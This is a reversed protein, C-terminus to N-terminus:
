CSHLYGLCFQSSVEAADLSTLHPLTPANVAMALSHASRPHFQIFQWSESNLPKSGNFKIAVPDLSFSFDNLPVTIGQGTAKVFAEKLTWIRYFAVAQQAKPLSAILEREALTFISDAIEFPAPKSWTEADIGIECHQAAVACAVFDDTHTLSFRPAGQGFSPDVIPKGNAMTSFRWVQPEIDALNSLTIRLLAHAAIYADRDAAFRFRESRSQESGDLLPTLGSIGDKPNLMMWRVKIIAIEM